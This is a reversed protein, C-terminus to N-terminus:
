QSIIYAEKQTQDLSADGNLDREARLAVWATVDNCWEDNPKILPAALVKADSGNFAAVKITGVVFAKLQKAEM